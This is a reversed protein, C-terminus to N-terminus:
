KRSADVNKKFYEVTRIRISYFHIIIITYFISHPKPAIDTVGFQNSWVCLVNSHCLRLRWCAYTLTNLRGIELFLKLSYICSNEVYSYAHSLTGNWFIVTQFKQWNFHLNTIYNTKLQSVPIYFYQYLIYKLIRNYKNINTKM